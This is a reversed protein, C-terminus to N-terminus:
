FSFFQTIILYIALSVVVWLITILIVEICSGISLAPKHPKTGSKQRDTLEKLTGLHRIPQTDFDDIPLDNVTNFANPLELSFDAKYNAQEDEM